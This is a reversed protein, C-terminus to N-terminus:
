LKYNKNGCIYSFLKFLVFTENFNVRTWDKKDKLQKCGTKKKISKLVAEGYITAFGYAKKNCRYCSGSYGHFYYHTADQTIREVGSNLRWSDGELYSGRWTGFVKYTGKFKLIVWKEPEATINYM